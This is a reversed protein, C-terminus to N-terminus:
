FVSPVVFKVDTVTIGSAMEATLTASVSGNTEQVLSLSGRTACDVVRKGDKRVRTLNFSVSGGSKGLYSGTKEDCYSAAELSYSKYSLYLPTSCSTRKTGGTGSTMWFYWGEGVPLASSDAAADIQTQSFTGGAFAFGGETYCFGSNPHSEVFRKGSYVLGSQAFFESLRPLAADCKNTSTNLVDGFACTPVQECAGARLVETSKCTPDKLFTPGCSAAVVSVALLTSRLVRINM